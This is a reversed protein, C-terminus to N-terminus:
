PCWHVQLPAASPALLLRVPLERPDEGALAHDFVARKDAGRLLLIRTRTRALLAPTASIRKPWAGAGPCGTADFALYDADDHLSRELDPSGPFLSATHGDSGMGLVAVDAVSPSDANAAAVADALTDDGVRVLPVFTAHAAPGHLLTEYAVRANSHADNPPLWREDVLGIDIRSWELPLRALAAYVPGPTTGGSVLLRAREVGDLARRLAGAIAGAATACWVSEEAHAQFDVAGAATRPLARVMM